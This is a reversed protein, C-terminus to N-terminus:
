HGAMVVRKCQVRPSQFNVLLGLPKECAKLYNACQSVHAASLTEVCKLEVVLTDDVMVDAFYNGVSRGKYFVEIAVEAEAKMGRACLEQVLARQYVKELFGPGLENSVEHVAGIVRYTLEDLEPTASVWNKTKM